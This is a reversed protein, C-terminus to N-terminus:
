RMVREQLRSGLISRGLDTETINADHGEQDNKRAKARAADREDVLYKDAKDSGVERRQFILKAEAVIYERLSMSLNGFDLFRVVDVYVTDEDFEDTQDDLDYLLDSRVAVNLHETDGTTDLRLVTAAVAVHDDDDPTLEVDYETNEFWGQEQIRACTRDLVREAQAATGIGDTDLAAVRYEHITELMENVADLKLTGPVSTPTETSAGAAIIIEVASIIEDTALDDIAQVIFTKRTTDSYIDSLDVSAVYMSEDADGFDANETASLKPNVAAAVTAVWTDDDFDFCKDNSPDLIRFYVTNGSTYKVSFYETAM